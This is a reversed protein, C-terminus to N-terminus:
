LNEMIERVQEVSYAVFFVGGSLTIALGEREQWPTTKNGTVKVEIGFFRGKYCVLLDPIGRRGYSRVSRDYWAGIKRLYECIDTKLRGEPTM